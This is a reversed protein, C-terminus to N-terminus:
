TIGAAILADLERDASEHRRRAAEYRGRAVELAVTAAEMAAAERIIETKAAVLEHTIEDIRVRRLNAAVEAASITVPPAGEASALTTVYDILPIAQRETPAPMEEIIAHADPENSYLRAHMEAFNRESFVEGCSCHITQNM